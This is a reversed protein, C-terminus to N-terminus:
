AYQIKLKMKRATKDIPAKRTKKYNKEKRVWRIFAQKMPGIPWGGSKKM